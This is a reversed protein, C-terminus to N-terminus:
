ARTEFENECCVQRQRTLRQDTRKALHRPARKKGRAAAAERRAGGFTMSLSASAPARADRGGQTRPRRARVQPRGEDGETARLAM